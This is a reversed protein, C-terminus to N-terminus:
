CYITDCLYDFADKISIIGLIEEKESCVLLHRFRGIRMLAFGSRLSDEFKVYRPKPTMFKEVPTTKFEEDSIKGVVKNLIDRETFIGELKKGDPSIVIAGINNERMIRVVEALVVDSKCTVVKNMVPIDSFIGLKLKEVM